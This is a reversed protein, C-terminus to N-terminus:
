RDSVFASPDHFPAEGPKTFELFEINTIFMVGSPVIGEPEEGSSL